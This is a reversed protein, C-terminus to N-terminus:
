EERTSAIDHWDWVVVDRRGSYIYKIGDARTIAVDNTRKHWNADLKRPRKIWAVCGIMILFWGVFALCCIASNM